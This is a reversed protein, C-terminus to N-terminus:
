EEEDDDSDNCGGGGYGGVDDISLCFTLSFVLGEGGKNPMQLPM